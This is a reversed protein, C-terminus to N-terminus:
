RRAVKSRSANFDFKSSVKGASRRILFIELEFAVNYFQHWKLVFFFFFFRFLRCLSPEM